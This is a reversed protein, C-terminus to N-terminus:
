QHYDPQVISGDTFETSNLKQLDIPLRPMSSQLQRETLFRSVAIALARNMAEPYVKARATAFSGDPQIGQLPKHKTRHSCRGGLGKTLTLDRFTHLRLLMLTTPKVADLGFVCQDFSCIQICELRALTRLAQLTWVSAPRVKMLWLPFQPHELFGCLGLQSAVVILDILFQILTTGTSVQKWQKSTLGAIGWPEDYTRVPSPGGPVHRAASWTECSPGGGIGLVHGQRMKQIWFDKTDADTLDSFEKALCLDVSICFIQQNGSIEHNEICHQLDGRRRYGSFFHVFLFCNIHLRAAEAALGFQMYIGAEGQITGGNSQLLFPLIEVKHDSTETSQECYGDLGEFARGSECIRVSWRAKMLAADETGSGPLLPGSIRTVPLFAKSASWGQARLARMQEREEGEIQEVVEEAAPVFCALYSNKCTDSAVTHALLRTRSFFKKGCALCEDGLVFYKLQTRYNHKHRAHVALAKKSDFSADCLNCKWKRVKVQDLGTQLSVFHSVKMQLRYTWLKGQAGATTHRLCSKLAAKVRGKWREDIAIFTLLEGVDEFEPLAVCPLHTCMWKYSALLWKMWSSAHENAHLFAWLAAPATHIARKVYRLRNAHLVDQPGNLGILACIEATTFQFPPVPRMVHKALSAVQARLGNEWQVVDKQTVWAWTHANYVHRSMVLAAFVASKTRDEVNRKGYFQRHLQGFAKRAQATRYRIDKQVVAHDQMFSGLHKYSHVLQLSQVGHETVVPLRGGHVHWVKHKTSKSGPGSLKILAETKGAQYNIALGRSAASDHLCSAVLQLSGIVDDPSRSHIAYAIDDVFTVEAFGRDPVHTPVSVDAATKPSGFCSMGTSAEIKKRADLVVLRFVMNFLIDAVPDGPRTGRMTATKEQLGQMSFHTASFMDKLISGYQPKLGDTANDSAVATKIEQWEDPTIGLHKMAYCIADDHFEGQFFSARLVSYFASQLDVFLIACSVNAVRAWALHAHLMHHAVDTSCGKRGGLQILSADKNWIEALRQRMNAHHVKACIDSLFISRYASPDVPSGKGKFLPVLLGGKWNLPEHMHWNAKALLPTLIQAMAYGGSKIVDVPLQGPGPVKGNKFKRILALIQCPDPCCEPDQEVGQHTTEHLQALQMETVDLGAEIVAFQQKWVGQCEEFSSAFCEDSIKLKPLPRPGKNLDKKRRGLRQLRKYVQAIDHSAWDENISDLWNAYWKRQDHLVMSRVSKELCKLEAVIGEDQFGQSRAMDLAQRKLQIGAITGESLIPRARTRKSAGFHQTALQLINSELLASHDDISVEWTPMPLTKLAEAFARQADVDQMKSFDWRLKKACHKLTMIGELHCVAPCHDLHGFGGDFDSWIHSKVCLMFMSRSLLIYDRRLQIGRPHHWTTSPGCHSAFTSPVYFENATLFDQFEFGQPNMEEAHHMGFFETAHDALPANADIFIVSNKGVANSVKGSVDTWWQKVQAFPRDASVCPAHAVIFCLCIPGELQAVMLRPESVIITVKCDNLRVASGDQLKSIPLAKHLWLECGFHKSRGCQEYGSSYIKYNDTCRIGASTRAEQIGVVAIQRKQFQSDLRLSRAGSTISAGDTEDLALGNYTAITLSLRLDDVSQSGHARRVGVKKCSPTPQWVAEGHLKPMTKAFSASQQRIWEWKQTTPSDALYHLTKWPVSGVAQRNRVIWKAVADALENWPDGRHARVENVEVNDPKIQGLVHVVKALVSSQRSTSEIDLFRKSLALDPRVTFHSDASGFCALATAVAMATLEADVNTHGEAGIWRPSDRVIETIDGICGKFTRGSETVSVAVVAWASWNGHTAGDVYLEYAIVADDQRDHQAHLEEFTEKHLDTGEPIFQFVWADDNELAAQVSMSPLLEFAEGDVDFVPKHSTVTADLCIQVKSDAAEVSFLQGHDASHYELVDGNELTVVDGAIVGNVRVFSGYTVNLVDRLFDTRTRRPLTVARASACGNHYVVCAVLARDLSVPWISGIHWCNPQFQWSDRTFKVSYLDSCDQILKHNARFMRSVQMPDFRSNSHMEFHTVGDHMEWTCVIFDSQSVRQRRFLEALTFPSGEVDSDDDPLANYLSVPCKKNGHEHPDACKEGIQGKRVVVRKQLLELGEAGPTQPFFPPNWQASYYHRNVILDIADGDSARIRETAAFLQSRLRFVCQAHHACELTYGIRGLVEQLQLQETFSFARHFPHGGNIAPDFTTLILSSWEPSNHQIIIVHGAIGSEMQTPPPFVLVLQFDVHPDLEDEWKRRFNERWNWFDAFLAIRRGYLCQTRGTTPAVYWTMFHTARSEGQWAFAHVDWVQYIDEIVQAWEPLAESPVFVDADPNFQYFATEPPTGSDLGLASEPVSTEKSCQRGVGFFSPVALGTQKHSDKAYPVGGTASVENVFLEGQGQEASGSDHAVSKQLMYAVDSDELENFVDDQPIVAASSRTQEDATVEFRMDAWTGDAVSTSAQASLPLGIVIGDGSGVRVTRDNPFVLRGRQVTADRTVESGVIRNVFDETGSFSHVIMAAQSVPGSPVDRMISTALVAVHEDPLSQVVIIHAAHSQWPHSPPRPDVFHLEIPAGRTFHDRWPFIIESRWWQSDADLRVVKPSDNFHMVMGQVFWVLVYMVPGEESHELFANRDFVEQLQNLWDPPYEVAAPQASSSPTIPNDVSHPDAPFGPVNPRRFVAGGIAARLEQRLQQDSMSLLEPVSVRIGRRVLFRLANGTRVQLTQDPRIAINGMWLLCENDEREPPCIESYGLLLTLSNINLRDSVVLAISGHRGYSRLTDYVTVVITRSFPESQQEIVLQEQVTRDVDEPTPFVIAFHTPLALEARDHWAGLLEREWQNFNSSLVVIRSHECRTWRRPNTFWTELRLGNQPDGGNQAIIEM